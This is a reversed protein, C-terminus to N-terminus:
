LNELIEQMEKLKKQFQPDNAATVAASSEEARPPTLDRTLYLALDDDVQIQDGHAPFRGNQFVGHGDPVYGHKVYLRQAPGYAATLGVGIGVVASRKGALKEVVELLASAIRRRQYIKLVNLDVIEPINRSRFPPYNSVWVLTVYGALDGGCEAVFVARAGDTQEQLYRQYQAVPKDWGQGAFAASICEPDDETLPRILLNESMKELSLKAM